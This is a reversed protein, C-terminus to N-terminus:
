EATIEDIMDEDEQGDDGDSYDIEDFADEPDGEEYDYDEDEEEPEYEDPDYEDGGSENQDSAEADTANQTSGTESREPIVGDPRFITYEYRGTPEISVKDGISVSFLVSVVVTKGTSEATGGQNQETGDANTGSANEGAANARDANTGDANAGNTNVEAIDSARYVINQNGQERDTSRVILLHDLPMRLSISLDFDGSLPAGRDSFASSINKGGSAPIKEEAYYWDNTNFDGRSLTMEMIERDSLSSDVEIYVSGGEKWGFVDMIVNREESAPRTGDTDQGAGSGDMGNEGSANEGSSVATGSEGASSTQGAEGASAEASPGSADERTEADKSGILGTIGCGSLIMGAMLIAFVRVKKM